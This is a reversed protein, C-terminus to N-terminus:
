PSGEVTRLVQVPIERKLDYVYSISAGIPQSVFKSKLLLKDADPNKLKCDIRVFDKEIKYTQPADLAYVNFGDEQPAKNFKYRGCAIPDQDDIELGEPLLIKVETLNALGGAVPGRTITIGISAETPESSSAELIYKPDTGIGVEVPGPSYQSKPERDVQQNKFYVDFPNIRQVKFSDSTAKDIFWVRLTAKTKFNYLAHFEVSEVGSSLVDTNGQQDTGFLCRAIFDETAQKKDPQAAIEVSGGTCYIRFVDIPAVAGDQDVFPNVKIPVRLTTARDRYIKFSESGEKSFDTSIEGGKVEITAQVNTAQSKQVETEIGAAKRVQYEATEAARQPFGLASKIVAKIGKAALDTAPQIKVASEYEPFKSPAAVAVGYILLMIVLGVATVKSLNAVLGKNFYFGVFWTWFFSVGFVVIISIGTNLGTVATVPMKPLFFQLAAVGGIFLVKKWLDLEIELLLVGLIFLSVYGLWRYPNNYSYLFVDAVIWLTAFFWFLDTKFGAYKLKEAAGSAAEKVKGFLAM